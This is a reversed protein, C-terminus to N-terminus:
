KRKELDEEFIKKFEEFSIEKDDRYYTTIYDM